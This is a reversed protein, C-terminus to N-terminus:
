CPKTSSLSEKGSRVDSTIELVFKASKKGDQMLRFVEEVKSISYSHLPRVPHLKKRAFLDLITQFGERAQQPHDIQWAFGDFCSLSTNKRFPYMPLNFNSLVNGLARHM